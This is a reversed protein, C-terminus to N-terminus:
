KWPARWVLCLAQEVRRFGTADPTPRTSYRRQKGDESIFEYLPVTTKPPNKAARPLAYFLPRDGGALPASATGTILVQAGDPSRGAFVAVTKDTPRDQAFWGIAGRGMKSHVHAGIVFPPSLDDDTVIDENSKVTAVVLPRDKSEVGARSRPKRRGPRKRTRIAWCTSYSRTLTRPEHCSSSGSVPAAGDITLTM